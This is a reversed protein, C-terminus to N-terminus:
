LSVIFRTLGVNTLFQSFHPHDVKAIVSAKLLHKCASCAFMLEAHMLQKPFNTPQVLSLQKNLQMPNVAFHHSFHANSLQWADRISHM